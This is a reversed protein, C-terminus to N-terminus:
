HWSRRIYTHKSSGKEMATILNWKGNPYATRTHEINIQKNSKKEVSRRNAIYALIIQRDNIM